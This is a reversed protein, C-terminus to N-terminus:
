EDKGKLVELARQAKWDLVFDYFGKDEMEVCAEFMPRDSRCYETFAYWIDEGYFGLNSIHFLFEKATSTRGAVIRALLAGAKAHGYARKEVAIQLSDDWKFPKPFKSKSRSKKTEEV